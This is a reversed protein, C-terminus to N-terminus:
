LFKRSCGPLEDSMDGCDDSGDCVQFLLRLIDLNVESRDEILLPDHSFTNLLTKETISSIAFCGQTEWASILSAHSADM